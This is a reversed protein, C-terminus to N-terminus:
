IVEQEYGHNQVLDKFDVSEALLSQPTGQAVLHGDRVFVVHDAYKFVGPRHAAMIISVKGSFSKLLNLILSETRLDLASTVEDLIWVDKNFYLARCIALRQRQGESLLKGNQGVPSLEKMPLANVFDAMGTDQLTQAVKKMDIDELKQGFGINEAISASLIYFNQMVIAVREWWAQQVDYMKHGHVIIEGASPPLFGMMANLLTSKGGGSPGVLVVMSGHKIDLSIGNLSPRGAVGYSFDANRISILPENLKISTEINSQKVSDNVHIQKNKFEDLENTTKILVQLPECAGRMMILSTSIKNLSPIFRFFAIVLIGIQQVATEKDAHYKAMLYMCLILVNICIIENLMSPAQDLFRGWKETKIYELNRRLFENKFISTVQYIHMERFAYFTDVLINFVQNSSDNAKQGIYKHFYKFVKHSIVLLIAGFVIVAFFVPSVLYALIGVVTICLVSNALLQFFQSIFQNIVYPITWLVLNSVSNSDRRNHFELPAYLCQTYIQESIASKWRALVHVERLSAALLVANKILYVAGVALAAFITAHTASFPTYKTLFVGFVSQASNQKDIFISILPWILFLGVTELTANIIAIFVFLVSDFKSIHWFRKYFEHFLSRLQKFNLSKNM